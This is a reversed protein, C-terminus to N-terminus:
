ANLRQVPLAGVVRRSTDRQGGHLRNIITKDTMPMVCGGAGLTSVALAFLTKARNTM